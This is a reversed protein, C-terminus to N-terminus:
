RSRAIGFEAAITAAGGRIDVADAIRLRLRERVAPDLGHREIIADALRGPVYRISQGQLLEFARQQGANSRFDAGAMRVLDRLVVQSDRYNRQAQKDHDAREDAPMVPPRYPAWGTDFWPEHSLQSAYREPTLGARCARETRFVPTRAFVNAIGEEMWRATANPPRRTISHQVEHSQNGALYGTRVRAQLLERERSRHPDYAGAAVLMARAINPAFTIWGDSNWAGARAAKALRDPRWSQLLAAAAATDGNAAHRRLARADDDSPSQLSTVARAAILSEIDKPLIFGRLNSRDGLSGTSEIAVRLQRLLGEGARSAVLDAALKTDPVIAWESPAGRREVRFRVQDNLAGALTQRGVRADLLSEPLLASSAPTMHALAVATQTPGGVIM